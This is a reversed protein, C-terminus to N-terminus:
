VLSKRFYGRLMGEYAPQERVCVYGAKTFSAVSPRNEPAITCYLATGGAERALRDFLSLLAAHLGRRRYDPHVMVDQFDFTNEPLDGVKYAYCTDPRIYWPTLVAFGALQDGNFFGFAEGRECCAAFLPRPSPYYWTPEPLAALMARQLTMIAGADPETLQKCVLGNVTPLPGPTPFTIM